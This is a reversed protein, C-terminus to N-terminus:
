VHARGIELCAVILVVIPIFWNFYDVLNLVLLFMNWTHRAIPKTRVYDDMGVVDRKMVLKMLVETGSLGVVLPVIYYMSDPHHFLSSLNSGGTKSGVWLGIAFCFVIYALIGLRKWDFTRRSITWWHLLLIKLM